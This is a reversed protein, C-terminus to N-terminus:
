YPKEDYEFLKSTWKWIVVLGNLMAHIAAYIFSVWFMSYGMENEYQYLHIRVAAEKNKISSYAHYHCWNWLVSFSLIYGLRGTEMITKIMFDLFFGYGCRM